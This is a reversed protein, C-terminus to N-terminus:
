LASGSKVPPGTPTAGYSFGDSVTNPSEPPHGHVHLQALEAENGISGFARARRFTGMPVRAWRNLNKLTSQDMADEEDATTGDGLMADAAEQNLFTSDLVDTLEIPAALPLPPPPMSGAVYPAPLPTRVRDLASLDLPPFLPPPFPQSFSSRASRSQRPRTGQVIKCSGFGTHSSFFFDSRQGVSMSGDSEETSNIRSKRKRKVAAFPSPIPVSSKGDIIAMRKPPLPVPTASNTSSASPPPDGASSISSISSLMSVPAKETTPSVLLSHEPAIVAPPHSREVFAKEPSPPSRRFSGMVPVKRPPTPPHDEPQSQSGENVPSPVQPVQLDSPEPLEVQPGHAPDAVQQVEQDIIPFVGVDHPEAKVQVPSTMAMAMAEEEDTEEEDISEVDKIGEWVEAFEPPILHGSSTMVSPAAAPFDFKGFMVTAYGGQFLEVGTRLHDPLPLPIDVAQEQRLRRLNFEQESQHQQSLYAMSPPLGDEDLGEDFTTNGDFDTETTTGESEEDEDANAADLLAPDGGDIESEESTVEEDDDLMVGASTQTKEWEADFGTGGWGDVSFVLRGDPDETVIFGRDDDEEDASPDRKLRRKRSRRNKSGRDFQDKNVFVSGGGAAKVLSAYLPAP